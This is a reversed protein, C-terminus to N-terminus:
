FELLRQCEVLHLIASFNVYSYLIKEFIDVKVFLIIKSSKQPLRSRQNRFHGNFIQVLGLIKDVVGKFCTCSKQFTLDDFKWNCDLAIKICYKDPFTAQFFILFHWKLAPNAVRILKMILSLSKEKQQLKSALSYLLRSAGCGDAFKIVAMPSM